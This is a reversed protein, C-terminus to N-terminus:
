SPQPDPGLLQTAPLLGLQRLGSGTDVVEWMEVIRGGDVRAFLAQDVELRNGTAAVGLFPGHHIAIVRVRAATLM